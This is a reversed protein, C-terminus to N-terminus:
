DSVTNILLDFNGLLLKPYRKAFSAQGQTQCLCGRGPVRIPWLSWNRFCQLCILSIFIMGVLAQPTLEWVPVHVQCRWLGSRCMYGLIQVRLLPDLDLGSGQGYGNCRLTKYGSCRFM